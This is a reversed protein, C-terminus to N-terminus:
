MPPTVAMTPCTAGSAVAAVNVVFDGRAVDGFGDVIVVVEEGSMLDITVCSDQDLGLEIDDGCALDVTDDCARRLYLVTDLSSGITDLQFRGASPAAWRFARDPSGVARMVDDPSAFCPALPETDNGGLLTTGSFVAMGLASSVATPDDPCGLSPGTIRAAICARYADVYTTAVDSPVMRQCAALANRFDETCGLV